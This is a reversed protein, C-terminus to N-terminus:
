FRYNIGGKFTSINYDGKFGDTGAGLAPNEWQMTGGVNAFSTYLYEVKASWGYGLSQEIGAGVTWGLKTENNSAPNCSTGAPVAGCAGNGPDVVSHTEHFGGVALGGTGYLLTGNADYGLRGRVTSIWNLQNGFAWNPEGAALPAQPFPVLTSGGTVNSWDWDGEVGTVVRGFQWNYGIQGGALAGSGTISHTSTDLPGVACCAGPAFSQTGNWSGTGYGANAGIYFGAWSPGPAYVPAKTVPPASLDAALASSATVVAALALLTRM